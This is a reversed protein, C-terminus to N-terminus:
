KVRSPPPPPHKYVSLNRCLISVHVQLDDLTTEIKGAFTEGLDLGNPRVPASHDEASTEETRPRKAEAGVLRAAIQAAKQKAIEFESLPPPVNNYSVVPAPGSEGGDLSNGNTNGLVPEENDATDDFKRKKESRPTQEERNETAVVEGDHAM